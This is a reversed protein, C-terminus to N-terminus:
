KATRQKVAEQVKDAIPGGKAAQEVTVSGDAM